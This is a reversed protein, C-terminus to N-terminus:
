TCASGFRITTLPWARAAVATFLGDNKVIELTVPETSSTSTDTSPLKVKIVIRLAHSSHVLNSKKPVRREEQSLFSSWKELHQAFSKHQRKNYSYPLCKILSWLNRLNTESDSYKLMLEACIWGMNFSKVSMHM